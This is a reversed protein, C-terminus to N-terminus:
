LEVPKQGRPLRPAEDLQAIWQTLLTRLTDALADQQEDTLPSFPDDPPTDTAETAAARGADTIRLLNGRRDEAKERIVLGKAELKSVLESLSGPQIGLMQQLERQSLADRGLLISLVLAQGQAPGGQPRRRLLRGAMDILEALDAEDLRRRLFETSPHRLGHPPMGPFGPGGPGMGPGGPFGPGGPMGHKGCDGPGGPGMGPGGPMGRRGCGGPGMGPGGPGMGPDFPGHHRRGMGHCGRRGFDDNFHFGDIRDDFPNFNTSM